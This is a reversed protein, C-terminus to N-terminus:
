WRYAAKGGFTRPAGPYGVAPGFSVYFDSLGVLYRTDTLNQGWLSLEVHSKNLLLSIQASLLGYGPVVGAANQTAYQAKIEPPQQTAPTDQYMVVSSTHSYDAHLSLVGFSLPLSQTAAVNFTFKPAQPFAENSRDVTYVVGNVVQPEFFSHADYAAHLYAANVQVQMGTWPLATSELEVGSTQADGANEVYTVLTLNSLNVSDQVRQVHSQWAHFVALNTRLRHDLWEAKLGGEIDRVGEPAFAPQVQGQINWGGAMYAGSSKLYTFVDPTLKYDLSATWAPYSFKAERPLACDGGPVFNINICNYGGNTIAAPPLELNNLAEITMDREDWTYRVGGTLRLRDTINYNAQGYVATSINRLSANNIDNIPAAAPGGPNLFGFFQNAVTEHAHEIFYYAGTIYSVDAVTGSANLEQSFQKQPYFEHVSGANIPISGIDATNENYTERFATISHLRVRGLEVDLNAATGKSEAWECQCAFFAKGANNGGYFNYWNAPTAIYQATNVGYAAYIPAFSPGMATLHQLQGDDSSYSYDGTLRLTIPHDSPAWLLEARGYYDGNQNGIPRHLEVAYGYGDHAMYNVVGRVALEDGQIPVNLVANVLRSNYNGAGVTVSGEYIGTPANTTVNIAGGTTNRGFLTGQPGRLVEAQSIDYMSLNDAVPRAIYVGDVYIGVAPDSASNPQDQAEGRIALYVLSSPGAAGGKISLDPASRELGRIDVIQQRDLAEGSLATVAVPTIQLQESTRRATVVVDELKDPPPQAQADTSASQDAAVATAAMVAASTVSTFIITWLLSKL